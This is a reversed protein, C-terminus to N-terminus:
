RGPRYKAVLKFDAFNGQGQGKGGLVWSLGFDAARSTWDVDVYRVKEISVLQDNADGPAVVALASTELTQAIQQPTLAIGFLALEDIRGDFTDKVKIGGGPKDDANSGGIVV